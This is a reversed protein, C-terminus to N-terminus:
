QEEAEDLGEVDSELHEDIAESILDIQEPTAILELQTGDEDEIHLLFGDDSPEITFQALAKAMKIEQTPRTRSWPQFMRSPLESWDSPFEPCFSRVTPRDSFAMTWRSTVDTSAQRTFGCFVPLWAFYM